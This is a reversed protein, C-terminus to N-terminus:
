NTIMISQKYGFALDGKLYATIEPMGDFLLLAKAQGLTIALQGRLLRLVLKGQFREVCVHLPKERWEQYKQAESVLLLEQDNSTSNITEFDEFLEGHAFNSLMEVADVYLLAKGIGFSVSVKERSLNVVNRHNFDFIECTLPIKRYRAINQAFLAQQTPRKPTYVKRAKLM